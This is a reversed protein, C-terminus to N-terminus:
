RFTQVQLEKGDSITTIAGNEDTRFVEVGRKVYRDVIEEHPFGFRNNHGVSFVTIEPAVQALFEETSSTASGHHPAKIVTSKLTQKSEIMTTEGEGEIDGPLLLSVKDHKVMLVLSNDNIDLTEGYGPPHLVEVDVGNINLPTSKSNMVIHKIGEEEIVDMLIQFEPM